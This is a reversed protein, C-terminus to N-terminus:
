EFEEVVEMVFRFGRSSSTETDSAYTEEAENRLYYGPDNWGGGKTIGYEAVLEEVNGAMNYLGMSNPWYSYVPVVLGDYDNLSGPIATGNGLTSGVYFYDTIERDNIVLTGELKRVSNQDVPTFNALWQGHENELYSTGWPFMDYYNFPMVYTKRGVGSQSEKKKDPKRYTAAYRWEDKTPLRFIVKKFARDPKENYMRTLWGCFLTAQAHSVGVVPYDRYAPHRLYYDVYPESYTLKHRWVLTDPLATNYDPSSQKLLYYLYDLYKQNSVEYAYLYFAEVNLTDHTFHSVGTADEGPNYVVISGKPFYIMSEELNGKTNFYHRAYPNGSTAYFSILSFLIPLCNKM